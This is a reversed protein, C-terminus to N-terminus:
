QTFVEGVIGACHCDGGYRQQYRLATRKCALLGDRFVLWLGYNRCEYVSSGSRNVKVSRPEGLLREVEDPTMGKVAVTRALQTVRDVGAMIEAGEEEIEDLSRFIRAQARLHELEPDEGQDMRRQLDLAEDELSRVRRARANMRQWTDPEAVARELRRRIEIPDVDAKVRMRVAFQGENTVFYTEEEIDVALIASAFTRVEDRTVAFRDVETSAEIYTGAQELLKRKAELLCVRRAQARTDNDGLVTVHEAQVVKACAIGPLALCAWLCFAMVAPILTIRM